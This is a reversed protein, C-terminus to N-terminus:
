SEDRRNTTSESKKEDVEQDEQKASEMAEPELLEASRNLHVFLGWAALLAAATVGVWAAYPLQSPDERSFHFVSILTEISLAVVLVVLFRSLFRRVRTPASIHTDRLVQEEYITQGLEFSALSITLVSIAHLIGDVRSDSDRDGYAFLATWLDWLAFALLAFAASVFLACILSHGATFVKPVWKM